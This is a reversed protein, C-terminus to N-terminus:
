GQLIFGDCLELQRYLDDKEAKTLITEDKIDNDNFITTKEVPLLTIAIGGNEVILYRIEDVEGIKHWLDDSYKPFVKGIIGIIPKKRMIVVEMDM